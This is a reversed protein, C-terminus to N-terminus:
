YASSVWLLWTLIETSVAISMDRFESPYNSREAKFQIYMNRTGSM